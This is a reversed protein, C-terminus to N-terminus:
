PLLRAKMRSLQGRLSSDYVKEGARIIVGAILDARPHYVFRITKKWSSALIEELHKREERALPVASEVLVDLRNFFEDALDDYIAVISGLLKIKNKRILLQLFNEMEPSLEELSSIKRIVKCRVARRINPSSLFTKLSRTETVVARLRHLQDGWPAVQDRRQAVRFLAQAYIRSISDKRM